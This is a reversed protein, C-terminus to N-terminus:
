SITTLSSSFHFQSLKSADLPPHAGRSAHHLQSPGGPGIKSYYGMGRRIGINVYSHSPTLKPADSSASRTRKGWAWIKGLTSTPEM